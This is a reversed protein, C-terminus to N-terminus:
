KGHSEIVVFKEMVKGSKENSHSGQLIPSGKKAGFSVEIVTYHCTLFESNVFNTGPIDITMCESEKLDCLFGDEAEDIAPPAGETISCDFGTFDQYCACKGAFCFLM